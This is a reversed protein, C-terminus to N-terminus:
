KDAVEVIIERNSRLEGRFKKTVVVKATGAAIVEFVFTKTAADGGSMQRKEPNKYTINTNVLKLVEENDVSVSATFGVSGHVSAECYAKQGVKLNAKGKLESLHVMNKKTKRHDASTCGCVNGLVVMM